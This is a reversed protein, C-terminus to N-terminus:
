RALKAPQVALLHGRESLHPLVAASIEADRAGLARAKIIFAAALGALRAQREGASPRPATLVVKTGAGRRSTVRGAVELERYTRAVTLVGIRVNM